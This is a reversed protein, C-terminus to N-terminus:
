LRVIRSTFLRRCSKTACCSVIAHILRGKEGLNQEGHCHVTPAKSNSRLSRLRRREGNLERQLHILKHFTRLLIRSGPLLSFRDVILPGVVTNM